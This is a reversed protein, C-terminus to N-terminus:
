PAQRDRVAREALPTAYDRYWLTMKRCMDNAPAPAGSGILEACAQAVNVLTRAAEPVYPQDMAMEHRRRIIQHRLTEPYTWASTLIDFVSVQRGEVTVVAERDGETLGLAELRECADIASAMM